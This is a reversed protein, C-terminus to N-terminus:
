PSTSGTQLTAAAAGPNQLTRSVLTTSPTITNAPTGTSQSNAVPLNTPLPNTASSSTTVPPNSAPPASPVNSIYATVPANTGSTSNTSAPANPPPPLHASAPNPTAVAGNTTPPAAVIPKATWMAAEFASKALNGGPNAKDKRKRHSESYYLWWGWISVVVLTLPGAAYGYIALQYRKVIKESEKAQWNFIPMALFTAVFTLPLFFMTLTAIAVMSTSDRKTDDAITKAETTINRTEQGLEVSRQALLKAQESIKKSQEAIDRSILNDRQAVLNWLASMLLSAQSNQVRSKEILDNVGDLTSALHEALRRKQIKPHSLPTTSSVLNKIELDLVIKNMQTRFRQLTTVLYGSSEFNVMVSKILKTYNVMSASLDPVGLKLGADLSHQEFAEKDKLYALSLRGLQLEAFAALALLPHAASGLSFELIRSMRKVETDTCGIIIGYTTETSLNWSLAVILDHSNPAEAQAVIGLCLKTKSSHTFVRNLVM